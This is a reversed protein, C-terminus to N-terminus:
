PNIHQLTTEVLNICEVIGLGVRDIGSFIDSTAVPIHHPTEPCNRTSSALDPQHLTAETLKICETICNDVQDIGAILHDPSILPHPNVKIHRAYSGILDSLKIGGLDDALNNIDCSSTLASAESKKPNALHDTFGGLDNIIYIWPSFTFTTGENPVKSTFHFFVM